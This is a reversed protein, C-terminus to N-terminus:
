GTAILPAEKPLVPSMALLPVPPPSTLIFQSPWGLEDRGAPEGDLNLALVRVQQRVDHGVVVAGRATWGVRGRDGPEHLQRLDNLGPM